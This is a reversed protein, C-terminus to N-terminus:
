GAATNPTSESLSAAEGADDNTSNTSQKRKEKKSLEAVNFVMTGDGSGDSGRSPLLLQLTSGM